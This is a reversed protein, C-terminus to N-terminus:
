TPPPRPPPPHPPPPPASPPKTPHPGTPHPNPLTPAPPRAPCPSECLLLAHPCLKLLWPVAPSSCPPEASPLPRARCTPWGRPAACAPGPCSLPRGPHAARRQAQGQGLPTGRAGAGVQEALYAVELPSGLKLLRLLVHVGRRCRATIAPCRAAHQSAPHRCLAFLPACSLGEFGVLHLCLRNDWKRRPMCAAAGAFHTGAANQMGEAGGVREDGAPAAFPHHLAAGAQSCPCAGFLGTLAASVPANPLQQSRVSSAPRPLQLAVESFAKM